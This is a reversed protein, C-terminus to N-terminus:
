NKRNANVSWVRLSGDESWSLIRNGARDWSAGNVVGTHLLVASMRGDNTDWLRVTADDSWTLIFRGSPHPIAGRITMGDSPVVFDVAGTSINWVYGQQPSNTISLIRQGSSIPMSELFVPPSSVNLKVSQRLQVYPTDKPSSSTPLYVDWIQAKRRASILVQKEGNFWSAQWLASDLRICSLPSYANVDWICANNDFSWTLVRSGDANWSAGWVEKDHKFTKIPDM